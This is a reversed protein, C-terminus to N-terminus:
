RKKCLSAMVKLEKGFKYSFLSQLVLLTLNAFIAIARIAAQDSTHYFAAAMPLLVLLLLTETFAIWGREKFHDHVMVMRMDRALLHLVITIVAFLLAERASDGQIGIIVGAMSLLAMMIYFVGLFLTIAQDTWSADQFESNSLAMEATDM